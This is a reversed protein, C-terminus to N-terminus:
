NKLTPISHTVAVWKKRSNHLQLMSLIVEYEANEKSSLSDMCFQCEKCNKCARRPLETDRTESPVFDPLTFFARRCGLVKATGQRSKPDVNLGDKETIGM